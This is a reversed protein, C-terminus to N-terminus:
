YLMIFLQTQVIKIHMCLLWFCLKWPPSFIDQAEPIRYLM